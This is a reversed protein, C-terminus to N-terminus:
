ESVQCSSSSRLGLRYETRRNDGTKVIEGGEVLRGLLRSVVTRDKLEVLGWARRHKNLAAFIEKATVGIKGAPEGTADSLGEVREKFARLTAALKDAATDPPTLTADDETDDVALDPGSQDEVALVVDIDDGDDDRGIVHSKLRYGFKVKAPNGIRFKSGAKITGRGSSDRSIEIVTDVNAQLAGSGRVGEGSKTPHALATVNAGTAAVIRQMAATYISADKADNDNGPMISQALTDIVIMAVPLGYHAAATNAIEILDKEDRTPKGSPDFLRCPGRHVVFAGGSLDRGAREMIDCWSAVRREVDESNELAVYIVVGKTVKRGRWEFGHGVHLGIDSFVATKGAGWLGTAVSTTGRAVFFKICWNVMRLVAGRINEIYVFRKRADGEDVVASFAEGTCFSVYAPSAKAKAFERALQREDYEDGAGDWERCFAAYDMVTMDPYAGVLYRAAKFRNTSRDAGPADYLDGFDPAHERLSELSWGIASDFAIKFDPWGNAGLQELLSKVTPDSDNLPTEGESLTGILEVIHSPLEPLTGHTYARLFRIADKQAGYCKGDERMSGPAIYQGRVDCGYQKKLAGAANTYKGDPDKFIYHLGGSQTPIVVCGEPLGHEEFHKGLLEPGNDKSDADIIVLGSPGCAISTVADPFANFMKKIVMADKTAGVHIPPRGHKAEYEEIAAEREDQTLQTDIRNFRPILPTKGSSVFVYLGAQAFLKANTRNTLQRARTNDSFGVLNSTKVSVTNM